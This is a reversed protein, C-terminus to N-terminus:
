QIAIEERRGWVEFLFRGGPRLVRLAERFAAQKDAFFMFESSVCSQTLDSITSLCRSRM